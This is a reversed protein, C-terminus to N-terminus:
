RSQEGILFTLNSNLASTEGISKYANLLLELVCSEDKLLDMNVSSRYSKLRSIEQSYWVEVFFVAQCHLGCVQAARAVFLFNFSALFQCSEWFKCSRTKRVSKKRFFEVLRILAKISRAFENDARRNCALEFIRNLQHGVIRQLNQESQFLLEIFYPLGIECLQESQEFLPLCFRCVNDSFVSSTVLTRVM